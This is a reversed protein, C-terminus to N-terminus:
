SQAGMSEAEPASKPSVARERRRSVFYAWPGLPIALIQALVLDLPLRNPRRLLARALQRLHDHRFWSAAVALAQWDGHQIWCRTLLAFGGVNYAALTNRLSAYDRRHRHWVLAAPNYVIQYGEALLQYFAYADGGTRTVTGADLEADFLRMPNLLDRRFAMNAGAGVIGAACPAMVTYDFVRRQFGRALGGYIEFLEQAQTELELPMTLGTVAAVRPNDFPDLIAEVWRPDVVVDDDTFMVIEGKAMRAGYSRAWNLGPRDERVYRVPYGSVLQATRDDMPANDVVIIEGGPTRLRMLSNLCRRLDDTRNRTCIVISWTPLSAPPPETRLLWHSLVAQALRRSLADDAEIADRLDAARLTGAQCPVRVSGVPRGHYRLLVLAQGYDSLGTRGRLGDTLEIELVRATM